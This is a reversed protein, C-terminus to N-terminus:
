VYRSYVLEQLELLNEKSVARDAGIQKARTKIKEDSYDSILIIRVKPFENKLRAASNLGDDRSQLVIIIFDPENRIFASRINKSNELEIIIDNDQAIFESLFARFRANRDVILFKM